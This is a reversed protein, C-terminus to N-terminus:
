EDLYVKDEKVSTFPGNKVEIFKTGHVIVEYAHYGKYFIAFENPKIYFDNIFQKDDDFLIARLKGTFVIMCEQTYNNLRPRLIHKHAKFYKTQDYHFMAVQLAKQSDGIWITKNAELNQIDKREYLVALLNGSKDKVKIM